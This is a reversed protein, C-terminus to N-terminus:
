RGKKHKTFREIKKWLVNIRTKIENQKEERTCLKEFCEDCFTYGSYVLNFCDKGMCEQLTRGKNMGM